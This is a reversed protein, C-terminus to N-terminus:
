FSYGVDVVNGIGGCFSESILNTKQLTSMIYAADSEHTVERKQEIGNETEIVITIKVGESM